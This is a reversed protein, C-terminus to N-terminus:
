FYFRGLLFAPHATSEAAGPPLTVEVDVEGLQRAAPKSITHTTSWGNLM